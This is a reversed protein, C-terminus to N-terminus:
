PKVCELMTGWCWGDGTWWLLGAVGLALLTLGASTALYCIALFLNKINM